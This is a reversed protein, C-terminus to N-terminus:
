RRDNSKAKTNKKTEPGLMVIKELEEIFSDSCAINGFDTDKFPLMNDKSVRCNELAGKYDKKKYLAVALHYKLTANPFYDIAKRLNEAAKSYDELVLYILGKYAIAKRKPDCLVYKATDDKAEDCRPSAIKIAKDLVEVAKTSIRKDLDYIRHTTMKEPDIGGWLMWAKGMDVAYKAKSYMKFFADKKSLIDEYARIASPYDKCQMLNEAYYGYDQDSDKTMEIAKKRDAIATKCDVTSLLMHWNARFRYIRSDYEPEIDILRSFADIASKLAQQKQYGTSIIQKHDYAWGLAWLADPFKADIEVAKQLDAIKKDIDKNDFLRSRHYYASAEKPNLHISQTYDDYAEKTEGYEHRIWGRYLYGQAKEQQNKSIEILKNAYYYAKEMDINLYIDALKKNVSYDRPNKKLEEEYVSAEKKTNVIKESIKQEEFKVIANKSYENKPDIEIARRYDEIAKEYQKTQEYAYGRRHYAMSLMEGNSLKLDIARSLDKKAATFKKNLLYATGRFFYGRADNSNIQIAKNCIEIDSDPVSLFSSELSNKCNNLVTEYDQAFVNSAMLSFIFLALM